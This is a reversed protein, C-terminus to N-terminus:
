SLKPEGPRAIKVLKPAEGARLKLAREGAQLLDIDLRDAISVLAILLEGLELTTREATEPLLPVRQETYEKLARKLALFESHDSTAM